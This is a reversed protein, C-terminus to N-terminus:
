PFSIIGMTLRHHQRCSNKNSKVGWISFFVEKIPYKHFPGSYILVYLKVLNGVVRSDVRVGRGVVRETIGNDYIKGRDVTEMVWPIKVSMRIRMTQEEREAQIVVPSRRRMKSWPRLRARFRCLWCYYDRRRPIDNKIIMILKAEDRDRGPQAKRSRPYMIRCAVSQNTPGDTRAMSRNM